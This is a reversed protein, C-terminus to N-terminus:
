ISGSFYINYLWVPISIEELERYIIIQSKPLWIKKDDINFLIAKNTSHIIFNFKKKKRRYAKYIRPYIFDYDEHLRDCEFDAYWGM